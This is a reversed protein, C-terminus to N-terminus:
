PSYATKLSSLLGQVGRAAPGSPPPAPPASRVSGVGGWLCVFMCVVRVRLVGCLVCVAVCV